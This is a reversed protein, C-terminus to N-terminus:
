NLGESKRYDEIRVLDGVYAIAREIGEENLADINHMLTLGRPGFRDEVLANLRILLQMDELYPDREDLEIGFVRKWFEPFSDYLFASPFVRFTECLRMLKDARINSNQGSEIKQVAAKQIGLIRGLEEQTMGSAERHKKIRKGIEKNIYVVENDSYGLLIRHTDREVPMGSPYLGNGQLIGM